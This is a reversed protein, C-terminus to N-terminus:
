MDALPNRFKIEGADQDAFVEEEEQNDEETQQVLKPDAGMKRSKLKGQKTIIRQEKRDKREQKADRIKQQKEEKMQKRQEYMEELHKELEKASYNAFKKQGDKANQEEEPEPDYGLEEIDSGFM